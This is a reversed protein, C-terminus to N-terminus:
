VEELLVYLWHRKGVKIDCEDKISLWSISAYIMCACYRLFSCAVTYVAILICEKGEWSMCEIIEIQNAM